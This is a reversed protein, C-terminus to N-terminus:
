NFTPADAQLVSTPKGAIMDGDLIFGALTWQCLCMYCVRALEFSDLSPPDKEWGQEVTAVRAERISNENCHPCTDLQDIM